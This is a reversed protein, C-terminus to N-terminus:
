PDSVNVAPESLQCPLATKFSFIALYPEEVIYFSPMGLHNWLLAELCRRPQTGGMGVINITSEWGSCYFSFAQCRIISKYAFVVFVWILGGFDM